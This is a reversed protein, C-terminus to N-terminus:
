LIFLKFFKCRIQLILEELSKWGDSSIGRPNNAKGIGCLDNFNCEPIFKNRRTFDAEALGKKGLASFEIPENISGQAHISSRSIFDETFLLTTGKPINVTYGEDVYIPQEIIHEGSDFIENGKVSIFDLNEIGM